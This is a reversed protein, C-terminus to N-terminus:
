DREMLRKEEEEEIGGGGGRGTEKLLEEEGEGGRGREKLGEKVEGRGHYGEGGRPEGM